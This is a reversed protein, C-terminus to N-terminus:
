LLFYFQYYLPNPSYFFHKLPRFDLRVCVCVCKIQLDSTIKERQFLLCPTALEPCPTFWTEVGSVWGVWCCTVCYCMCVGSPWYFYYCPNSPLLAFTHLSNVSFFWHSLWHSGEMKREDVKENREACLPCLSLPPRPRCVQCVVRWVSWWHPNCCAAFCWSSCIRM